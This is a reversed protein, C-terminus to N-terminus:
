DERGFTRMLVPVCVLVLGVGIGAGLYTVLTDLQSEQSAIYDLRECVAYDFNNAGGCADPFTPEPAALATNCGLLSLAGIVCLLAVTRVLRKRM